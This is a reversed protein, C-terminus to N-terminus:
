MDQVGCGSTSSVRRTIVSNNLTPPSRVHSISSRSLPSIMPVHPNRGTCAWLM